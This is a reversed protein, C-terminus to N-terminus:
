ENITRIEFSTMRLPPIIGVCILNYYSIFTISFGQRFTCISQVGNILQLDVTFFLMYM